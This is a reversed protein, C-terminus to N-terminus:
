MKMPPTRFLLIIGPFRIVQHDEKRARSAYGGEPDGCVRVEEQRWVAQLQASAVEQGEGGAAGGAGSSFATHQLVAAGGTAAAPSPSDGGRASNRAAGHPATGFVVVSSRREM